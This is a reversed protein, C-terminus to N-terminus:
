LMFLGALTSAILFGLFTYGYLRPKSFYSTSM